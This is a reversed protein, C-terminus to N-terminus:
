NMKAFVNYQLARKVNEWDSDPIDSVYIKNVIEQLQKELDLMNKGKQIYVKIADFHM